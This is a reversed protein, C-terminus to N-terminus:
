PMASCAGLTRADDFLAINRCDGFDAFPM